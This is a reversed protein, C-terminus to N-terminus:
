RLDNDSRRSLITEDGGFSSQMKSWGNSCNWGSSQSSRSVISIGSTTVGGVTEESRNLDNLDLRVADKWASLDAAFDNEFKVAGLTGGSSRSVLDRNDGFNVLSIRGFCIVPVGEASSRRYRFGCGAGMEGVSSDICSCSASEILMSSSVEAGM